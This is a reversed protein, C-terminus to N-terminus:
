KFLKKSRMEALSSEYGGEISPQTLVWDTFRRVGETFSIAPEFGLESGILRLDAVNHRIDGVMYNGTVTVPVRRGFVDM